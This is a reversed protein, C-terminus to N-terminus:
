VQVRKFRLFINSTTGFFIEFASPFKYFRLISIKGVLNEVSLEGLESLVGVFAIKRATTVWDV